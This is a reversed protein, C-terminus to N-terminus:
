NLNFKISFFFFLKELFSYNCLINTLGIFDHEKYGILNLIRQILVSSSSIFYLLHFVGAISLTNYNFYSFRM